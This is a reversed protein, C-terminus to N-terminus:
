DLLIRRLVPTIHSILQDGSMDALAGTKVIYRNFTVGILHAALLAVRTDVDAPLVERYVTLSHEQMAIYLKTAAEENGAASRVLAVFPDQDAGSEMREVFARAVRDPLTRLDGGVVGELDRTGPVAAIFLQEKTSFQRLVLGHTVGARRAIDRVTARTYGLETFAARAAALIAIRHYEPDRRRKRTPPSSEPRGTM